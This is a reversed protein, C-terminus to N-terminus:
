KAAHTVAEIKNGDPDRIFAGYYNEDYQPRLGPRGADAGGNAIGVRHFENVTGRHGAVFAIHVGNGSTAAHGDVPKEVSFLIESIGYDVSHGTAKLQRLGLVPLVADYFAKARELDNTGVSVHHIM